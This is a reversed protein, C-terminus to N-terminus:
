ENESLKTDTIGCQLKLGAKGHFNSQASAVLACYFLPLIVFVVVALAHWPRGSGHLMGTFGSPFLLLSILLISFSRFQDKLLLHRYIRENETGQPNEIYFLKKYAKKIM